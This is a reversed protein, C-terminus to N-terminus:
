RVLVLQKIPAYRTADDTKLIECPCPYTLMPDLIPTRLGTGVILPNDGENEVTYTVMFPNGFCNSSPSAGLNDITLAINPADSDTTREFRTPNMTQYIAYEPNRILNFTESSIGFMEFISFQFSPLGGAIFTSLMPWITMFIIGFFGIGGIILRSWPNAFIELGGSYM